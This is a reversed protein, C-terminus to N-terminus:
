FPSARNGFRQRWSFSQTTNGSHNFQSLHLTKITFPYFIVELSTNISVNCVGGLAASINFWFCTSTCEFYVARMGFLYIFGGARENGRCHRRAARPSLIPLSHHVESIFISLHCNSAMYCMCVSKSLLPTCYNISENILQMMLIFLLRSIISKEMLQRVASCFWWKKM